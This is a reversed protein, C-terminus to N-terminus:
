EGGIIGAEEPESNAQFVAQLGSKIPYVTQSLLVMMLHISLQIVLELSLENRKLTLMALRCEELFDSILESKAIAAQLSRENRLDENKLAKGEEKAKERALLIMAPVLPFCCIICIRSLLVLKHKDRVNSKWQIWQCSNLVVLPRHYAIQITSLLLPVIISTLLILAIQSPFEHSTEFLNGEIVSLIVGLLISDNILDLYSIGVMKLRKLGVYTMRVGKMVQINITETLYRELRYKQALVSDKLQDKWNGTYKFDSRMIDCTEARVYRNLWILAQPHGREVEVLCILFAQNVERRETLERGIVTNLCVLSLSKAVETPRNMIAQKTAAKERRYLIETVNPSDQLPVLEVAPQGTTQVGLWMESAKILGYRVVIAAVILGIM